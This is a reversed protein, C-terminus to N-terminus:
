EGLMAPPPSGPEFTGAWSQGMMARSVPLFVVLVVLPSITNWSIEVGGILAFVYGVLVLLSLWFLTVWVAWMIRSGCHFAVDQGHTGLRAALERIFPGYTATRDEFNGLSVYHHSRIKIKKGARDKLTCQLPQGGYGPYSILHVSAIDAYRRQESRDGDQWVLADDGLRYTQTADILSNRVAHIPDAM